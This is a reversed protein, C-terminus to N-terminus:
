IGVSNRSPDTLFAPTEFTFESSSITRREESTGLPFPHREVTDRSFFSSLTSTINSRVCTCRKRANAGVERISRLASRCAIALFISRFTRDRHFYGWSVVVFRPRRGLEGRIDDARGRKALKGEGRKRANKRKKRENGLCKTSRLTVCSDEM